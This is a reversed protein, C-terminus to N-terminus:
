EEDLIYNMPNVPIGNVRVEYHLHPGTSRGTNGTASIVDFKSVKQGVQVYIQSNHAYRTLVGYGHDISVLKGYFEDWGAFSVVGDAPSRVPTGPSVAIDVGAHLKQKGNIPDIRYGFRSGIPGRAPKVNPTSSLLSQRDSLMEWLEIVSQEKLASDKVAENIRIVLTSYNAVSKETALEGKFTNVPNEGIILPEQQIFDDTSMREGAQQSPTAEPGIQAPFSLRESRDKMQTDTILKLKNTVMGVRELASQLTDLKTEVVQFQKQLNINEIKLKKNEISQALLGFYDILGALLSIVVVALIFASIKFYSVPMVIKKTQAEDNTVFYLTITKRPQNM